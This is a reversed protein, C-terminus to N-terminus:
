TGPESEVGMLASNYGGGVLTTIVGNSVVVVIANANDDNWHLPAGTLNEYLYFYTDLSRTESWMYIDVISPNEVELEWPVVENAIAISGEVEEGISITHTGVTAQRTLGDGCAPLSQCLM